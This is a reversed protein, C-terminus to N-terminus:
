NLIYVREKFYIHSYGFLFIIAGHYRRCKLLFINCENIIYKISIIIIKFVSDHLGVYFCVFLYNHKCLTLTPRGM